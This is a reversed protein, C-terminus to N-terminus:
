ERFSPLRKSKRVSKGKSNPEIERKLPMAALVQRERDPAKATRPQRSKVKAGPDPDSNPKDINMATKAKREEAATTETVMTGAKINRLWRMDATTKKTAWIM